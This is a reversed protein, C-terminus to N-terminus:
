TDAPWSPRDFATPNLTAIVALALLGTNEILKVLGVRTADGTGFCGCEIDLGRAMAVAVAIWFLGMLGAAVVAGARPQVRTFIALAAVLEIWPLTIAALNELGFPVLRFRGIQRAFSAADGIKALASVLLVVAIALQGFLVVRRNGLVRIVSM